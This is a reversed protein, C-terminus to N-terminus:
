DHDWVRQTATYFLSGPIGRQLYRHDRLGLKLPRICPSQAFGFRKRLSLAKWSPVGRAVTSTGGPQFSPTFQFKLNSSPILIANFLTLSTQLLRLTHFM